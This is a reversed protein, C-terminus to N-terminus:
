RRRTRRATRKRKVGFKLLVLLIFMGAAAGILFTGITKNDAFTKAQVAPKKTSKEFYVDLGSFELAYESFLFASSNDTETLSKAYEFYSYGIIPFVFRTSGNCFRQSM